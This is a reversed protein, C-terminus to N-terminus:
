YFKPERDKPSEVEELSERYTAIRSYQFELLTRSYPDPNAVNPPAISKIYMTRDIGGNKLMTYVAAASNPVMAPLFLWLGTFMIAIVGVADM